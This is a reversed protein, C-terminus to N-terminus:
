GGILLSIFSFPLLSPATKVVASIEGIKLKAVFFQQTFYNMELKEHSNWLPHLLKQLKQIDFTITFVYIRALNKLYCQEHPWLM